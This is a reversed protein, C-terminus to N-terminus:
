HSISKLHEDYHYLFVDDFGVVSHACGRLAVRSDFEDMQKMLVLRSWQM